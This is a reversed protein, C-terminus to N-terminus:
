SFVKLTLRKEGNWIILEDHACSMMVGEPLKGIIWFMAEVVDRTQQSVQLDIYNINIPKESMNGGDLTVYRSTDGM